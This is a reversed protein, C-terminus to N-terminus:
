RITHLRYITNAPMRESGGRLQLRVIRNSIALARGDDLLLSLDGQARHPATVHEEAVRMTIEGGGHLDCEGFALLERSANILRGQLSPGVIPQQM